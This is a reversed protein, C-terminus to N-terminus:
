PNDVTVARPLLSLPVSDKDLEWRWRGRQVGPTDSAVTVGEFGPVGGTRSLFSRKETSRDGRGSGGSPGGPGWEVGGESKSRGEDWWGDPTLVLPKPTASARKRRGEEPGRRPVPGPSASENPTPSPHVPPANPDLQLFPPLPVASTRFADGGGELTEPTRCFWPGLHLFVRTELFVVFAPKPLLMLPFSFKDVVKVGFTMKLPVDRRMSPDSTKPKNGCDLGTWGRGM